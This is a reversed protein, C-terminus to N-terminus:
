KNKLSRKATIDETFIDKIVPENIVIQIIINKCYIILHVHNTNYNYNHETGLPM